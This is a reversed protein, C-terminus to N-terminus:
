IKVVTTSKNWNRVQINEYFFGLLNIKIFLLGSNTKYALLM